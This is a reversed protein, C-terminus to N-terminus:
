TCQLYFEGLLDLILDAPDAGREKIRYMEQFHKPLLFLIVKQERNYISNRRDHAAQNPPKNSCILGFRGTLQTLSNCLQDVEKSGIDNADYNKFECVVVWADLEELLQGWPNAAQFQRNPFLADRCEIDFESRTRIKPPQLPPVFLYQLIELCADEFERCGTQGPPCRAIRELQDHASM